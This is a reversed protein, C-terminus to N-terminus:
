LDKAQTKLNDNEEELERCIDYLEKCKDKWLDNKVSDKGELTKIEIRMADLKEFADLKAKREKELKSTLEQLEQRHVMEMQQIREDFNDNVKQLPQIEKEKKRLEELLKNLDLAEFIESDKMKNALEEYQKSKSQKYSELQGKQKELHSLQQYLKEILKQYHILNNKTIQLEQATIQERKEAEALQEWFNTNQTMKERMKALEQDHRLQKVTTCFAHFLKQKRFQKTLHLIRSFLAPDTTQSTLPEVGEGRIHMNRNLLRQDSKQKFKVEVEHMEQAIQECLQLQM